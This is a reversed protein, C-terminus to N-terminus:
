GDARDVPGDDRVDVRETVGLRSLIMRVPAPFVALDDDEVVEPRSIRHVAGRTVLEATGAALLNAVWDTRGYTLAFTFGDGHGFVNVPAEYARGSRRGRHVLVGFGPLHRAAPMMVHNTVARNFRALGSPLPM